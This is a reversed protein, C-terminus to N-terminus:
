RLSLLSDFQDQADTELLSFLTARIKRLKDYVKEPRQNFMEALQLPSSTVFIRAKLLEFQSTSLKGRVTELRQMLVQDDREAFEENEAQDSLSDAAYLPVPLSDIEQPLFPLDRDEDDAFECWSGVSDLSVFQRAPYEQMLRESVRTCAIGRLTGLMVQRRRQGVADLNRLHVRRIPELAVDLFIGLLEETADSPLYHAQNGIAHSIYRKHNIRIFEFYNLDRWENDTLSEIEFYRRALDGTVGRSSSAM